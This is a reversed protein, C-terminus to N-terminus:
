NITTNEVKVDVYLCATTPDYLYVPMLGKTKMESGVKLIKAFNDSDEGMQNCLMQAEIILNENIEFLNGM